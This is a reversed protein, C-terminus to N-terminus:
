VLLLVLLSAPGSAALRCLLLPLALLLLPLALLLLPLALLLLLLALLLLLLLAPLSHLALSHWATPCLLVLLQTLLQTLLRIM